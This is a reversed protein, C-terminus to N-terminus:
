SLGSSRAPPRFAKAYGVYHAASELLKRQEEETLKRIIRAPVGAVLSGPPIVANELVVAGAAVLSGEGVRANDLIVSRMGILSADGIACGHIVAGHGITVDSGVRVSCEHTVHMICGDQINTRDGIVIANIDGRLVAQFWVSVDQALEVDGIVFSGDAV